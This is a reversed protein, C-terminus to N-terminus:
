SSLIPEPVNQEPVPDPLVVNDIARFGPDNPFPEPLIDVNQRPHRDRRYM